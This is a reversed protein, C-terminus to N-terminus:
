KHERWWVVGSWSELIIRVGKQGGTQEVVIPIHWKGLVKKAMQINLEGISQNSFETGMMCAGGFVKATLNKQKCGAKKMGNILKATSWDGHKLTAGGDPLLYHNMGSIERTRDYLCIAVCSGLVTELRTPTSAVSLDGAWLIIKSPKIGTENM